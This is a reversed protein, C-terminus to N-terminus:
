STLSLLPKWYSDSAVWISCTPMKTAAFSWANEAITARM